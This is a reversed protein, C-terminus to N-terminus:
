EVEHLGAVNRTGENTYDSLEQRASQGDLEQPGKLKAELEYKQQEPDLEAKIQLYPVPTTDDNENKTSSSLPKKNQERMASLPYSLMSLMCAYIIDFSSQIGTILSTGALAFIEADAGFNRWLMLRILSLCIILLGFASAIIRLYTNSQREKPLQRIIRFSLIVTVSNLLIDIVCSGLEFAVIDGCRGAVTYIHVRFWLNLPHCLTFPVLLMSVVYGLNLAVMLWCCSTFIRGPFIRVIQMLISIRISSAAMKWAMKTAVLLVMRPNFSKDPPTEIRLNFASALTITLGINLFSAFYCPWAGYDLAGRRLRWFRVRLYFISSAVGFLIVLVVTFTMLLAHSAEVVIVDM